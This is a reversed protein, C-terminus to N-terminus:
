SWYSPNSWFHSRKSFAWEKQRQATETTTLPTYNIIIKATNRKVPTENTTPTENSHQAINALVPKYQAFLQKYYSYSLLGCKELEAKTAKTEIEMILMNVFKQATTRKMGKHQLANRVTTYFSENECNIFGNETYGISDFLSVENENNKGDQVTLRENSTFARREKTISTDCITYVMDYLSRYQLVNIYKGDNAIYAGDTFYEGNFMHSRFRCKCKVGTETLKYLGNVSVFLGDVLKYSKINCDYWISQLLAKNASYENGFKNFFTLVDLGNEHAYQTLFLAIDQVVEVSMHVTKNNAGNTMFSQFYRKIVNTSILNIYSKGKLTAREIRREYISRIIATFPKQANQASIEDFARITYTKAGDVTKCESVSHYHHFLAQMGAQVGNQLNVYVQSQNSNIYKSKLTGNVTAVPINYYAREKLQKDSIKSHTVLLPAIAKQANATLADLLTNKSTYSDVPFKVLM